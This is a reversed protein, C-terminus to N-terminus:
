SLTREECAWVSVRVGLDKARKVIRKQKEPALVCTIVLIDIKWERILKDLDAGGGLVTYGAIIRGKLNLDDDLVGMIVRNNEGSRAAMERLFGRFRLGGGYTFARNTGPKDLLIRREMMQMIGHVSDLLLRMGVVPIITLTSFLVTFVIMNPEVENFLWVLGLGVLSGGFLALVLGAFDRINARSWVRWYTKAVVLFVFVPVVFLPLNSLFAARGIPMGALLRAIVWVGCLTFVDTVLYLPILLGQRITRREQSLLRGTDWLEVRELHRVVVIVAVIFAILFLGPARHRLLTGALGVAVLVASVSYLIIAASRQNMTDRLIRHHVHDKDPQMVRVRMGAAVSQPLLARVTRRWIALMTDFIPVGMALLPVGLSAVLEKRSGTLLPLTAVCLGLFMSGTDGLFVSAPHFNYRLFGLCAGALVLYPLTDIVNGTFLMSGALGVSAILALGSALGDMGDILNFANVAGVIWFVTVVYDLWPPFAVVVGGVSVGSFFLISAVVIQGALKLLPKMGRKDDILGVAVLVSSALLFSAQWHCTFRESIQSGRALVLAGLVAHFAIFVALGGGRPTPTKNIRRPDPQDIMGLKRAMERCWPTLVLAAALAGFFAALYKVGDTAVRVLVGGSFDILETVWNVTM